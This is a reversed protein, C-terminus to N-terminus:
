AEEELRRLRRRLERKLEVLGRHTVSSVELYPLRREAAACRQRVGFAPRFLNKRKGQIM